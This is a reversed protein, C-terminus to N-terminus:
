CKPVTLSQSRAGFEKELFKVQTTILSMQVELIWQDL